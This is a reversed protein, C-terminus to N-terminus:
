LAISPDSAVFMVPGEYSSSTPPQQNYMGFPNSYSSSSFPPNVINGNNINNSTSYPYTQTSPPYNTFGYSQLNMQSNNPFIGNTNQTQFGNNQQPFMNLRQSDSLQPPQNFLNPTQIPQQISPQFPNSYNLHPQTQSFSPKQFLTSPPKPAEPESQFNHIM